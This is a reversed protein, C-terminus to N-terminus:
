WGGSAGGGGSSGGGGSFDGGGSSSDSGSSWSDGSGGSGGVSFVMGGISAKGKTRLDEKAKKYWDSNKLSLKAIPFVVLYTILCVLAGRSGFIVVPFMAWFPILFFYLFWGMGPTMIGIVTFLGIIGFIFAGLLIRQTIPMDPSEMGDLFGSSKSAERQEDTGAAEQISGGELVEMVAQVGDAIGGDYDGKKFKPTMVNRIIRGAMADTMTGELGYGVEIRMRRDNPVVIMLIGNDKNKQGLKWEKFVRSAYDEINEGALTPVTLIAIQNTTSEEHAKLSESLSKRTEESLIQANDTVRGTLYPINAEQAIASAALAALLVVSLLLRKM